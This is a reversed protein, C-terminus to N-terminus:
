ASTEVLVYNSTILVVEDNSLLKEWAAKAKEHWEDDADLVAYLASTDVFVCRTM